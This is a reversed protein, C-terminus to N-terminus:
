KKEELIKIGMVVYGPQQMYDTMYVVEAVITEYSGHDPWGVEPDHEKLILIDGVQFDRDNKRIEFTKQGSAVRTFFEPRCKLEHETKM